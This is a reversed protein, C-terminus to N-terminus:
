KNAKPPDPIFVMRGVQLRTPKIDQNEPDNLVADLSLTAKGLERFQENYASLIGSLTEGAQVEHYYGLGAGAPRQPKVIAVPTSQISKLEKLAAMIAEYDKERQQQLKELEGKLVTLAQDFEERKVYETESKRRLAEFRDFQEGLRAVDKRQVDLTMWMDEVVSNLQRYREEAAQMQLLTAATTSGSSQGEAAGGFPAALNLVMAAVVISLAKM